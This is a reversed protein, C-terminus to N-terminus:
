SAGQEGKCSWYLCGYYNLNCRVIDSYKSSKCAFASHDFISVGEIVFTWEKDEFEDANVEQLSSFLCCNPTLCGRRGHTYQADVQSYIFVYKYEQM